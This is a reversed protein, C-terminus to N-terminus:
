VPKILSHLSKIDTGTQIWQLNKHLTLILTLYDFGATVEIDDSRSNITKTISFM